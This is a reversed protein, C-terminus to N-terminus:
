GGFCGRLYRFFGFLLSPQTPLGASLLLSEPFFLLPVWWVFVTAVIKFVYVKALNSM